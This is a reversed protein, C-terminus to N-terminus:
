AAAEFEISLDSYDTIGSAEETSLTHEYTTETNAANTETWTAITTTNQKLRVVLDTTGNGKVRYRLVHGSHTKPDAISSLGINCTSYSSTYIYDSDNYSPEDICSYLDVGTSPLWNGDIIDMDPRIYQYTGEDGAIYSTTATGSTKIGGSTVHLYQINDVYYEEEYQFIGGPLLISSSSTVIGIGPLLLAKEDAEFDESKYIGVGPILLNTSKKVSGAGPLLSYDASSESSSTWNSSVWGFPVVHSYNTTVNTYWGNSIVRSLVSQEITSGTTEELWGSPTSRSINNSVEEIWGFSTVRSISEISVTIESGTTEQVWGTPTSRTVNNATEQVWGTPTSRTVAVVTPPNGAAFWGSPSVISKSDVPIEAWGSPTVRSIVIRNYTTSVGSTKLGGSVAFVKSKDITSSGSTEIGGSAAYSNITSSLTGIFFPIYFRTAM